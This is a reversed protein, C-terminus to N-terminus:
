GTQGGARSLPPEPPADASAGKGREPEAAVDPDARDRGERRLLFFWGVAVITAFLFWQVAYSLHNGETLEPEPVTMPLDGAQPPGQERLLLYVPWVDADVRKSLQVLSVDKVTDADPRDDTSEPPLLIGTITVPGQPPRVAAADASFPVWGRDVFLIRGDNSALPTLLHNGAKGNMARGYLEVERSGDYAGTISVVRYELDAPPASPDLETLPVPPQARRADIRANLDRRWELRELQWIGLRAFGLVVVVVLVWGVLWRGRFAWGM